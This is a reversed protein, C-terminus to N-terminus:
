GLLEDGGTDTSKEFYGKMFEYCSRLLVDVNTGNFYFFCDLQDCHRSELAYVLSHSIFKTCVCYFDGPIDKNSVKYKPSVVFFNTFGVQEMRGQMSDIGGIIVLRFQNVFRLMEEVSVSTDLHMNDESHNYMNQVTARLDKLEDVLGDIVIQKSSVLREAEAKDKEARELSITLSENNRRLTEVEAKIGAEAERIVRERLKDAGVRRLMEATLEEKNANELKEQLKLGRKSFAFDMFCRVIDNKTAYYCDMQPLYGRFREIDTGTAFHWLDAAECLGRGIEIKNNGKGAVQWWFLNSLAFKSDVPVLPRDGKIDSDLLSAGAQEAFMVVGPDETAGGFSGTEIYRGIADTGICSEFSSQLKGLASYRTFMNKISDKPFTAFKGYIQLMFLCFLNIGLGRCDSVKQKFFSSTYAIAGFKFMKRLMMGIYAAEQDGHVCRKFFKFLDDDIYAFVLIFAMRMAEMLAMCYSTPNAVKLAMLTRYVERVAPFRGDILSSRLATSLVTVDSDPEKMYSTARELVRPWNREFELNHCWNLYDRSAPCNAMSMMVILEAAGVSLLPALDYTVSGSADPECVLSVLSGGCRAFRTFDDAPVKIGRLQVIKGRYKINIAPIDKTMDLLFSGPDHENAFVEVDRKKRKM